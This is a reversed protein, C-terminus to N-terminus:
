RVLLKERKIPPFHPPKMSESQDSQKTEGKNDNSEIEMKDSKRKRSARTSVTKFTGEDENIVEESNNDAM